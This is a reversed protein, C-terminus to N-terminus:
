QWDVIILSLAMDVNAVWSYHNDYEALCNGLEDAVARDHCLSLIKVLMGKVAKEHM